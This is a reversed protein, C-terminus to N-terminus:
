AIAVTSRWRSQSLPPCSAHVIPHRRWVGGRRLRQGARTVRRIGEELRFHRLDVAAGPEEGAARVFDGGAGPAREVGDAAGRQQHAVAIANQAGEGIDAAVAKVVDRESVIGAVGGDPDLVLVAGIRRATIIRAIELISTAPEVSIVTHDKGKLIAGVTM